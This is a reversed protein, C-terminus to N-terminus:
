PALEPRHTVLWQRVDNILNAAEESCREASTADVEEGTYDAVNRKRRLLDLVIMRGETLGITKPLSQLVTMHHGPQRTDPRFGHAMMAALAAQMIAKYAADFRTEPSVEQVGSDRLIHLAAALLKQIEAADAPHEKLRGIRLLNELTM